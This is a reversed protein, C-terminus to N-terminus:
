VLVSYVAVGYRRMVLIASVVSLLVLVIVVCPRYHFLDGVKTVWCPKYAVSSMNLWVGSCKM